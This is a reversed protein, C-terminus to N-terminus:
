FINFFKIKLFIKLICFYIFEFFNTFRKRQFPDIVEMSEVTNTAGFGSGSLFFYPLAKTLPQATCDFDNLLGVGYIVPVVTSRSVSFVLGSVFSKTAEV